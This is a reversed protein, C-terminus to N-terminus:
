MWKVSVLRSLNLEQRPTAMSQVTMLGAKFLVARKGNCNFAAGLVSGSRGRNADFTPSRAAHCVAVFIACGSIHADRVLTTIASRLLSGKLPYM